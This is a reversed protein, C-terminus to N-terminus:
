ATEKERMTERIELAQALNGAGLYGYVTHTTIEPDTRLGHWEGARIFALDGPHAPHQGCRRPPGGRRGPWAGPTLRPHVLWQTRPALAAPQTLATVTQRVMEAEENDTRVSRGFRLLLKPQGSGGHGLREFARQADDPSLVDATRIVDHSV